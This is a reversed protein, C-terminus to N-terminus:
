TENGSTAHFGAGLICDVTGREMLERVAARVADEPVDLSAAIERLPILTGPASEDELHRQVRETLEPTARKPTPKRPGRPTAGAVYSGRGPVTDLAGTDRLLKLALQVTGESASFERALTATGPIWDGPQYEGAEIRAQLQSALKEHQLRPARKTGDGEVRAAHGRRPATVLSERALVTIALLAVYETTAFENRVAHAPIETGPRIKKQQIRHRLIRAIRAAQAPASGYAVRRRGTM